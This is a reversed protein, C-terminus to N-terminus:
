QATSFSRSPLRYQETSRTRKQPNSFEQTTSSTKVLQRWSEVGNRKIYENPDKGLAPDWVLERIRSADPFATLIGPVKKIRPMTGSTYGYMGNAGGEDRDYAVLITQFKDLLKRVIEERDDKWGAGNTFSLTPVGALQSSITDFEGEVLVLVKRNNKPMTHGGYLFSQSNLGPTGWYRPRDASELKPRIRYRLTLLKGDSRLVPIVIANSTLGLRYKIATGEPWGRWKDIRLLDTAVSPTAKILLDTLEAETPINEPEEVPATYGEKLRRLNEIITSFHQSPWLPNHKDYLGMLIAATDFARGSWGCQTSFCYAHDSFIALDGKGGHVPCDVRVSAGARRPVPQGTLRRLDVSRFLEERQEKNM